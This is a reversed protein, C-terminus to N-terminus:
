FSNMLSTRFFDKESQQQMLGTLRMKMSRVKTSYLDLTSFTVEQKFPVATTLVSEPPLGDNTQTHSSQDFCVVSYWINAM